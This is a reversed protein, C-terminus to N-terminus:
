IAIVILPTDIEARSFVEYQVYFIYTYTIVNFNNWEM